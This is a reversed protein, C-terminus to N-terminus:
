ALAPRAAARRQRLFAVYIAVLAAALGYWTVAYQLHNNPIDVLTQGGVPLADDSSAPARGAELVMPAAPGVGADRAMAEVDIGYWLGGAPDDAPQLWSRAHPRRLVGEVTVTGAPRSGPRTAPDRRDAPIWGRDVLVVGGGTRRLPTVLHTGARGQYTRPALIMERDHLFEGEVTVRRYDWADLDSETPFAAPMPVPAAATREAIRALLDTKWALRQVQWTGLGLLLGLMALAVLTAGLPFRPAASPPRSM